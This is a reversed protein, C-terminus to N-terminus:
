PNYVPSPRLRFSPIFPSVTFSALYLVPNLFSAYPRQHLHFTYIPILFHVLYPLCITGFPVLSDSIFSDSFRLLFGRCLRLSGFSYTLLSSLAHSHLTLSFLDWSKSACAPHVHTPPTPFQPCTPDRSHSFHFFPPLIMVSQLVVRLHPSHNLRCRERQM